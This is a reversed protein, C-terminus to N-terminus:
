REWRLIYDAAAQNFTANMKPIVIVGRREWYDAGEHLSLFRHGEEFPRYLWSTQGHNDLVANFVYCQGGAHLDGHAKRNGAILDCGTIICEIRDQKMARNGWESNAM